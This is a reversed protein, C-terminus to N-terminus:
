WRPGFTRVAWFVAERRFPSAGVSAMAEKLVCDATKRDIRHVTLGTQGTLNGKRKYLYDHVVSPYSIDYDDPSLWWWLVRPISGLDTLFHVPVELTGGLLASDYLFPTLIRFYPTEPNLVTEEAERRSLCRLELPTRFEDAM